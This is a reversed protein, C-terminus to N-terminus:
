VEGVIVRRVEDVTTTGDLVLRRCNDAMSTFDRGATLKESGRPEPGQPHRGPDCRQVRPDRVRRHPRPLRLQLVHPLRARPLVEARGRAEHGDPGAGRRQARVGGQLQPVRAAGPAAFSHRHRGHGDSLPAVGIDTLREISSFADNTHITTLVLHGTLAARMAIDATEGDRIEGVAVIDPDQRLVARLASAFTMGVKDDIQVQNIGAINYEVPDELTILNVQETNLERIMSYLTSSKGSGTPGVIMVVGAHGSILRHYKELDAGGLGIAATDLVHGSKDLLRIVVKEGYITPLTSIRLDIDRGKVRVNARGDLPIRHESIDMHGMIKIRSLVSSQLEKPVTLINHLLGDIRMRVKVDNEQPEIHIDSALETAAREIISNVLRITPASSVDDESLIESSFKQETEAVVGERRMDEIAKAAGENGYLAMIARDVAAQTAIMPVVKKRSLRKVEEQAVFNMPDSMALYVSDPTTHVPVVSYKQAVGKPIVMAMEPSIRAKSLDVFEIGLQMKLAEILQAEDIAGTKILSDGVRAHEKKGYALAADLQDKTILGASVLIDGLRKYAM